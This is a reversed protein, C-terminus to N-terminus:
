YLLSLNYLSCFVPSQHFFASALIGSPDFNNDIIKYESVVVVSLKPLFERCGM